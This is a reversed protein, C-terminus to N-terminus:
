ILKKKIKKFYRKKIYIILTDRKAADSSKIEKINELWDVSIDVYVSDPIQIM